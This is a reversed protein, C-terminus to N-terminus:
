LPLRSEKLCLCFIPGSSEKDAAEETVTRASFRNKKLFMAEQIKKLEGLIPGRFGKKEQIGVTLRCGRTSGITM